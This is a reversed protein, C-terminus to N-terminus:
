KNQKEKVYARCAPCISTETDIENGCYECYKKKPIDLESQDIYTNYEEMSVEIKHASLDTLIVGKDGYAKIKIHKLKMFKFAEKETYVAKSADTHMTGISDKWQYHVYYFFTYTNQSYMNSKEIKIVEASYEEGNKYIARVKCNKIFIIITIIWLGADAIPFMFLLLLNDSNGNRVEQGVAFFVIITFVLFVIAFLWFSNSILQKKLAKKEDEKDM